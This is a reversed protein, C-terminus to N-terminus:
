GLDALGQFCPRPALRWLCSAQPLCALCGDGLPHGPAARPSEGRLWNTGVLYGLSLSPSPYPSPEGFLRRTSPSRGRHCFVLHDASTCLVSISM